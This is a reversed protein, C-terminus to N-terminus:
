GREMVQPIVDRVGYIVFQVAMAALLLGMLRNLINLGTQKLARELVAASRLLLYTLVGTALVCALVVAGHLTSGKAQGMLVIVTAIAGPGALMPIGVPIVAVDDKMVGEREEEPSSRTRSRQARLMDLAMLFLLTGGAIRFAPLTIGFLKFILSGALAFVVLTATCVASARLATARKKETSDGATVALFMPIVAFPDVVFFVASFTLMTFSILESMNARARFNM